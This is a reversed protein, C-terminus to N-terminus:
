GEISKSIQVWREQSANLMTQFEVKGAAQITYITKTVADHVELTQQAENHSLVTFRKPLTDPVRRSNIIRAM